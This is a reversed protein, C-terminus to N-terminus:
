LCLPCTARQQLWTALCLFDFLHRCPSAVARESVSELCIVCPDIGETTDRMEKLTSELVIHRINISENDECKKKKKEEEEEEKQM